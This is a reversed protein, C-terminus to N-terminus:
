CLGFVYAQSEERRLKLLVVVAGEGENKVAGQLSQNNIENVFRVFM